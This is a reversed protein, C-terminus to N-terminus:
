RAIRKGAAPKGGHHTQLHMGIQCEHKRFYTHIGGTVTEKQNDFSGHSNMQVQRM